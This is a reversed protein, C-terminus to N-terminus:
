RSACPDCPKNRDLSKSIRLARCARISSGDGTRCRVKRATFSLDEWYGNIMVYLDDDQQSAGSLFFALSHSDYSLDVNTGVGYWHIDERWFRSRGLSPHAKRLVIMRKFFRVM